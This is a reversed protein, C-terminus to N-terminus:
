NEKELRFSVVFKSGKGKKSEVSIRANNLQCYKQVLAMGLGTGEINKEKVTEERSFTEFIKSIYKKDMGIGTDEVIVKVNNRDNELTLSVSGRKTYKVANDLLNSFLQVVSYFDGRIKSNSSNNFYNFKLGKIQCLRGYEKILSPMVDEALDISKIKVEYLNAQIESIRLINEITRLIRYGASEIAEFSTKVIESKNEGIEEKILNFFNLIINIPSRIEHTMQSFFNSKLEANKELLENAELLKKEREVVDTVDKYIVLIGQEGNKLPVTVEHLEFDRVEGDKRLTKVKQLLVTGDLIKKIDGKIKKHDKDPSLLSIHSGVLEDKSYGFIEEAANNAAIIFGKSDELLIPLPSANFLSTYLMEKTYLESEASLIETLDKMTTIIFKSGDKMELIQENLELVVIRGRATFNKVTQRLVEGNILKRINERAKEEEGPFVFDFVSKELLEEKSVELIEAAKQNAEIIKGELDEILIGNPSLEFLAKYKRESNLLKIKNLRITTVDKVLALISNLIGADDLIPNFSIEAYFVDGGKKKMKLEERLVSAGKIKKLLKTKFDEEFLEFINITKFENVSSYNFVEPAANNCFIVKGELNLLLIADNTSNVVLDYLTNQETLKRETLMRRKIEKRLVKNQEQLEFTREQVKRELNKTFALIRAQARKQESIDRGVAFILNVRGKSDLEPVLTCDIWLDEYINIEGNVIGKKKVVESLKKDVIAAFHGLEKFDILKKKILKEANVGTIKEVAKNVYLIEKNRNLLLILNPTIEALKKLKLLFDKDFEIPTALSQKEEETLEVLLYVDPSLKNIKLLQLKTEAIIERDTTKYKLHKTIFKKKNQLLEKFVNELTQYDKEVILIESYKKNILNDSLKLLIKASKNFFLIKLERDLIFFPSSLKNCLDKLKRILSDKNKLINEKLLSEFFDNPNSSNV